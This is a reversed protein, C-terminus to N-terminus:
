FTMLFKMFFRNFRKRFVKGSFNISSIRKWDSSKWRKEFLGSKQRNKVWFVFMENEAREYKFGLIYFFTELEKFVNYIRDM